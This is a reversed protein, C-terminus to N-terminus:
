ERSVVRVLICQGAAICSELMELIYLKRLKYVPYILINVVKSIIETFTKSYNRGTKMYILLGSNKTIGSKIKLIGLTIKFDAIRLIEKNSTILQKWSDGIHVASSHSFRWKIKENYM